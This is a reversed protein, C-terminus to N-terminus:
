TLDSPDRLLLIGLPPLGWTPPAFWESQISPAVTSEARVIPAVVRVSALATLFELKMFDVPNLKLYAVLYSPIGFKFLV